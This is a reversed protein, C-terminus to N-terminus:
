GLGDGLLCHSFSINAAGGDKADKRATLFGVLDPALRQVCQYINVDLRSLGVSNLRREGESM